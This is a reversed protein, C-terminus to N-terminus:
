RRCISLTSCAMMIALCGSSPEPIAPSLLSNTVLGESNDRPVTYGAGFFAAAVSGFHSQWLTYDGSDVLGSGDHDAGAFPAISQGLTDRWVTYDAADVVGDNNFDGPLEPGLMEASLELQYFQIVQGPANSQSQVRAYYTGPTDLVVGEISEAVGAAGSDSESLLSM